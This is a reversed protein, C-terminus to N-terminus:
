KPPEEGGKGEGFPSLGKPIRINILLEMYVSAEVPKGM